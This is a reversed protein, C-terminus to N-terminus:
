LGLRPEEGGRPLSELALLTLNLALKAGARTTAGELAEDPALWDLTVRGEEFLGGALRRTEAM